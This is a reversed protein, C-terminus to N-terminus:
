KEEDGTIPVPRDMIERQIDAIKQRNLDYKLYNFGALLLVLFGGVTVFVGLIMVTSEPQVAANSDFRVVDLLIGIFLITIAQSFKYFFTMTGYYVGELRIGTNLEDVDITDAIMSYPLSFLAGSGFGAVVSFPLLFLVNGAIADKMLVCILLISSGAMSFAIGAMVTDKKDIIKSIRIWVPLSLISVIFLAGFVMGIDQNGMKFTYTFVHIGLSSIIASSINTLLYAIVVLKYNRNKLARRISPFIRISRDKAPDIRHLKRIMPIYKKTSFFPIIGFCLAILSVAAGMRLYAEPNQQGAPYSDTPVFFVFFGMLTASMLGLLFFITRYGQISTRENYDTSLEAGLAAYPTAFVTVATKILLLCVLLAAFKMLTPWQRDISWLMFNSAAISISGILLYLHRKGFRESKTEDSFYGMLPDSLADWLVSLSIAFGVLSGPIGLVANAYFVMYTGITQSIIGYAMDGTGFGIKDILPLKGSSPIGRQRM